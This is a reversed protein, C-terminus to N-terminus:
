NWAVPHVRIHFQPGRDGDPGTGADPDAEALSETATQAFADVDTAMM